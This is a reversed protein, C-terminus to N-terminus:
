YVMFRCSLTTLVLSPMVEQYSSVITRITSRSDGQMDLMEELNTVIDNVNLLSTLDITNKGMALKRLRRKWEDADFYKVLNTPVGVDITTEIPNPIQPVSAQPSVSPSRSTAPNAALPSPEPSLEIPITDDPVPKGADLSTRVVRKRLRVAKPSMLSARTKVETELPADLAVADSSDEAFDGADSADSAIQETGIKM